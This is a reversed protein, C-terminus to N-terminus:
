NTNFIVSRKARKRTNQCIFKPQKQWKKKCNTTDTSIYLLTYTPHLTTCRTSKPSISVFLRHWNKKPRAAFFIPSKRNKHLFFYYNQRNRIHRKNATALNSANKQEVKFIICIFNQIKGKNHQAHRANVKHTDALLSGFHYHRLQQLAVIFFGSELQFRSKSTAM